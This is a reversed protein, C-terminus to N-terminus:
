QAEVMLFSALEKLEKPAKESQKVLLFNRRATDFQGLRRQLDALQYRARALKIPPGDMSLAEQLALIAHAQLAPEIERAIHRLQLGAAREGDTLSDLRLYADIHVDREASFGGRHAVRALNYRLVKEAEPTLDKAFEAKGMTLIKRAATPGNLGGVYVGVAKDRATWSANLYMEAITLPDRSLVRAIRAATDYREWVEPNDRDSWTRRSAEIAADIDKSKSTPVVMDLDSGMTSFYNSPCTSIAHERFQGRTSYVALDSDYGGHTNGSVKHYKRVPGDGYPCKVEEFSIGTAFAASIAMLWATMSDM